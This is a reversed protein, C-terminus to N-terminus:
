TNKKYKDVLIEGIGFKDEVEEIKRGRFYSVGPNKNIDYHKYERIFHKKKEEGWRISAAANNFKNDIDVRIMSYHHMKTQLLKWKKFPFVKVSPDVLLPYKGMDFRSNDHIRCIFPMYYDEIPTLRWTPYKYYTYMPTLTIDNDGVEEKMENFNDYYHDAAMLLFHTCKYKKAIEIMYNHKDREKQKTSRQSGPEWNYITVKDLGEFYSINRAIEPRYSGTNSITQYCIIIHDVHDYIQKISGELLEEGNFITYLAALKM